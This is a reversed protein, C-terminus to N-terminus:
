FDVPHDSKYLLTSFNDFKFFYFQSCTSNVGNHPYAQVEKQM